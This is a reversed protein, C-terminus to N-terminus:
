NIDRFRASDPVNDKYKDVAAILRVIHELGQYPMAVQNVLEVLESYAKVDQYCPILDLNDIMTEIESVKKQMLSLNTVTNHFIDLNGELTKPTAAVNYKLDREIEKIEFLLKDM